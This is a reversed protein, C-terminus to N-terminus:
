SYETSTRPELSRNWRCWLLPNETLEPHSVCSHWCNYQHGFSRVKEYLCMVVDEINDANSEDSEDLDSGLETNDRNEDDDADGDWQPIQGPAHRPLRSKAGAAPWAGASNGSADAVASASTGGDAGEGVVIEVEMGEEPVDAAGDTQPYQQRYYPQGPPPAQQQQQFHPVRSLFL